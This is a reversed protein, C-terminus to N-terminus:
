GGVKVSALDVIFTDVLDSQTLEADLSALANIHKKSGIHDTKEM